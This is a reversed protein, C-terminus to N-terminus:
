GIDKGVVWDKGVTKGKSRGGSKGSNLNDKFTKINKLHDLIGSSQLYSQTFFDSFFSDFVRQYAGQVQSGGPNSITVPSKTFVDEGNDNFALVSASRPKITVSGGNEMVEAKNYFPVTSGKSLSSSQSFTSNISLGQGRVTYSIDFLRANPSGTLYWEYVHHLADPSSRANSDIFTKLDDCVEAGMRKLLDKKGEQAGELFGTSYDILSSMEKEFIKTDIKIAIM